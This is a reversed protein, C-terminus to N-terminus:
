VLSENANSMRQVHEWGITGEAVCDTVAVLRLIVKRNVIGFPPIPKDLPLGELHLLEELNEDALAGGLRLVGHVNHAVFIEHCM